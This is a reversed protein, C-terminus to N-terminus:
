CCPWFSKDVIVQRAFWRRGLEEILDVDTQLRPTLGIRVMQDRSICLEHASECSLEDLLNFINTTLRHFLVLVIVEDKGNSIVSADAAHSIRTKMLPREEDSDLDDGADDDSAAGTLRRRSSTSTVADAESHELYIQDDELELSQGASAWYWFGSVLSDLLSRKFSPAPRAKLGTDRYLPLYPKLKNFNVADLYSTMIPTGDSSVITPRARDRALSSSTTEPPLKILIDWLDTKSEFIEDTTVGIWGGQSNGSGSGGDDKGRFSELYPIDMLGLCFLQRLPTPRQLTTANNPIASILQINYIFHCARQVPAETVLLIRKRALAARFVPFILPGFLSICDNLSLVPHLNSLEQTPLLSTDKAQAVQRESRFSEYDKFASNRSLIPSAPPSQSRHHASAVKKKKKKVDKHKTYLAELEAHDTNKIDFNAAADKLLGNYLWVKNLRQHRLHTSDSLVLLAISICSYEQREQGASQLNRYAAVGICGHHTFYVVDEPVKEITSPLAKYECGEIAIESRQWIIQYGHKTHFASVFLGVIRPLDDDVQAM